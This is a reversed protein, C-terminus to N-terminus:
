AYTFGNGDELGDDEPDLGMARRSWFEREEAPPVPKESPGLRSLVLYRIAAHAHGHVHEWEPDVIDLSDAGEPKVRASQLQDIVNACRSFVFLRPSGKEGRRPHWEPFYRGPDPRIQELVRAYGERRDNQGPSIGIGRDAYETEVSLERGNVDKTGFRNKISPDGFCTVWGVDRGDKPINGPRGEPTGRRREWVVEAHDSVLGPQHYEDFLILNGDYDMASWLWATPHNIGHDMAECREWEDPIAFGPVVHTDPTFEQYAQGEFADWDGDLLQQRVGETLHMLSGVYANQDIAPNDSLRAPVFVRRPDPKEPKVFRSKYWVHGVGGPNTASYMRVPVNATELRRLRSFLYSYQYETFHTAEDFGIFQFEASQYRDCHTDNDLYGFGLTAGSPFEWHKDADRWVADTGHLWARARAMLAGPLRLEAFTRRFIIAAYGPEDVHELAAMLLWDSKGGGAAGGYGVEVPLKFADPLFRWALLALEQKQNPRHPCYPLRIETAALLEDPIAVTV